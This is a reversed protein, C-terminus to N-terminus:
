FLAMLDRFREVQVLRGSGGAIDEHELRWTRAHPVFVAQLGAALAPNIDSKPSNGIMWTAEVDLARADVFREYTQQDKEKVVEVHTFYRGLGSRQVKRRQEGAEGKTFLILEHRESLHELTEPVGDIIEIPHDLIRATLRNVAEFDAAGVPRAALRELCQRLNRGFNEAGYGHVRNNAREIEDLVERVQEPTMSPHGLLECFEEFAREFYINNEWLTDDADVLLTRGREKV